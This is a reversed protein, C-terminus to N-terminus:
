LEFFRTITEWIYEVQDNLQHDSAVLRLEVNPHTAAFRVSQQHDVVVDNLGHVIVIPIDVNAQAANYRQMDEVFGYHLPMEQNYNYHFFPIFGKAQWETLNPFFHEASFEFAPALLIMKRITQAETPYREYFNIAAQGGMSSGILYIEGTPLARIAAAMTELIATMTLHTFEPVNLDPIHLDLQYGEALRRKLQQAKNSLPSSAFGHLYFLHKTM